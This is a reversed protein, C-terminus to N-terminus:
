FIMYCRYHVYMMKGAPNERNGFEIEIYTGAIPLAISPSQIQSGDIFSKKKETLDTLTIIPKAFMDNQLTLIFKADSSLWISVSDGCHVLDVALEAQRRSVSKLDISFDADSANSIPRRSGHSISSVMEDGLPIHVDRGYGDLSM